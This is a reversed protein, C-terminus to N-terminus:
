PGARRHRRRLGPRDARGPLRLRRGRLGSGTSALATWALEVTGGTRYLARVRRAAAARDTRLERGADDLSVQAQVEQASLADLEASVMDWDELAVEARVDLEDVQAALADVQARLVESSAAPDM